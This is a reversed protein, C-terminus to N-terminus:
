NVYRYGQVITRGDVSDYGEISYTPDTVRADGAFIYGVTGNNLLIAYFYNGQTNRYLGLVPLRESRYVKSLDESRSYTSRSCPQSKVYVAGNKSITVHAAYSPYYTCEKLYNRFWIVGDLQTWSGYYDCFEQITCSIPSGEPYYKGNLTVGFSESFWVVGGSIQHIVVAHGYVGAEGSGREFGVLINRVTTKGNNSITNLASQLSYSSAPYAHVDYGGSTKKVGKYTDYAQNGNTGIYTTNVKMVELQRGVYAGCWGNFSSVGGASRKAEQYVREIEAAIDEGAAMANMPLLAILTVLALIISILKKSINKM